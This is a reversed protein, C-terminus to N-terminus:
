DGKVKVMVAAVVVRCEWLEGGAMLKNVQANEMTMCRFFAMMMMLAMRMMRMLMGRDEVDGVEDVEDDVVMVNCLSAM